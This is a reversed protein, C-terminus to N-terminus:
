ALAGFGMEIDPLCDRRMSTAIEEYNETVTALRDFAEQDEFWKMAVHWVIAMHYDEDMIPIDENGALVQVKLLGDGRVVYVDDPAPTLRMSGNPLKTWCVPRGSPMDRRGYRAKWKQYSLYPIDGNNGAGLSKLYIGIPEPKFDRVTLTTTAKDATDVVTDFAYEDQMFNWYKKALQIERWSSIVWDVVDKYEGTQNEVSPPGNGGVGCEQVVKQCLELFNM